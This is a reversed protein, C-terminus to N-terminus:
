SYVPAACSCPLLKGPGPKKFTLACEAGLSTGTGDPEGQHGVPPEPSARCPVAQCLGEPWAAGLTRPPLLFKWM